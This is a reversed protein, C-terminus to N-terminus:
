YIGIRSYLPLESWSESKPQLYLNLYIAGHNQNLNLVYLTLICDYWQYCELQMTCTYMCIYNNNYLTFWFWNLMNSWKTAVAACNCFVNACALHGFQVMMICTRGLIQHKDGVIKHLIVYWRPGRSRFSAHDDFHMFLITYTHILRFQCELTVELHAIQSRNTTSHRDIAIIAQALQARRVLRADAGCWFRMKIKTKQSWSTSSIRLWSTFAWQRQSKALM